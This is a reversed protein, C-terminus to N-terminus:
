QIALPQHVRFTCFQCSTCERHSLVAIKKFIKKLLRKTKPLATELQYASLKERASHLGFFECVKM